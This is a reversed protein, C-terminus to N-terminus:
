TSEETRDEDSAEPTSDQLAESSGADEPGAAPDEGEEEDAAGEEETGTGGLPLVDKESELVAIREHWQVMMQVFAHGLEPEFEEGLGEDIYGIVREHEWASRYPRHTRLADYVDCLHVLDSAQHCRRPYRLKPYGGGNLKIHHEYAVVAPLDLNEESELIIRAGEITHRNMVEREADTLKGPKNLIEEPITIKGLDHLLGSIGFSRVENPALGIFEALAMALVSVNLAHTTTYQDFQKLQLLPILFAQDGHMAVTLSRVVAEAEVLHLKSNDRLEEHVFDVGAKEEEMTYDITATVIEKGRRGRGGGPVEVAGFVIARELTQRAESTDIPDGMLRSYLEELFREMEDRGPAGPIELRQIGANSLRSGWDWRRLESLPRNDFVIESGLFTFAPNPHDEKLRSLEDHVADVARERAPHGPKYLGMTSIVQALATLFTAASGKM